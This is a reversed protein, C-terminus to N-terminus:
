RKEQLLADIRKMLPKSEKNMREIDDLMSNCRALSAAMERMYYETKRQQEPTKALAIGQEFTKKLNM